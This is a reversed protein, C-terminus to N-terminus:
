KKPGFKYSFFGYPWDVLYGKKNYKTRKISVIEQGRVTKKSFVLIQIDDNSIEGYEILEGLRSIIIESHTEILYIPKAIQVNEINKNCSAVQAFMDALNAQQQPHLHLEPQEIAFFQYEDIKKCVEANTSNEKLDRSANSEFWIQALFPLIESIGFGSDVLNALRGDENQVFISLRPGLRQVTIGIKFYNSLWESFKLILEDELKDLFDALNRGDHSVVMKSVPEILNDRGIGFRSPGFYISKQFFEAFTQVIQNYSAIATVFGCISNLKKFMLGSQDHLKLYFNQFVKDASKALKDVTGKDLIPHELIRLAEKTIQSSTADTDINSDIIDGVELVFVNGIDHIDKLMFGDENLALPKIQSLVHKQSLEFWFRLFEEPLALKKNRVLEYEGNDLYRIKFDIKYEPIKIRSVRVIDQDGKQAVLIELDVRKKLLVEFDTELGHLKRGTYFMQNCVSFDEVGFQFTIGENEHGKKVATSYGGFDVYEGRWKIAIGNNAEISQKLMPITRLVTSKGVNNKGLLITLSCLEVLPSIEVSRLNKLGYFLKM